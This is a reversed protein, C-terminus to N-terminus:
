SIGTLNKRSEVIQQSGYSITTNLDSKLASNGPKNYISGIVNRIKSYQAHFTSLCSRLNSLLSGFYQVLLLSTSLM